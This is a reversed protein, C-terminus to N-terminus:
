FYFSAGARVSSLGFDASFNHPHETGKPSASNDLDHNYHLLNLKLELGITTNPFYTIGPAIVANVSLASSKESGGSKATTNEPNSIVYSSNLYESESAEYMVGARGEGFVYLQQKIPYYFRSLLGTQWDSRKQKYYKYYSMNQSSIESTTETESIGRGHEAFIGIAWKDSAMQSLSTSFQYFNFKNDRGDIRSDIGGNLTAFYSKPQLQASAQLLTLTFGTLLLLRKM